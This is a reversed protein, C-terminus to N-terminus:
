WLARLSRGPRSASSSRDWSRFPGARRPPGAPATEADEGAEGAPLRGSHGHPADQARGLTTPRDPLAPGLCGAPARRGSAMRGAAGRGRRLSRARTGQEAEGRPVPEAPEDTRHGPGLELRELFPCDGSQGSDDGAAARGQPGQAPPRIPQGPLRRHPAARDSLPAPRVGHAAHRARGHLGRADAAGEESARERRVAPSIGSPSPDEAPELRKGSATPWCPTPSTTAWSSRIGATTTGGASSTCARPCAKTFPAAAAWPVCLSRRSASRHFTLPGPPITRPRAARSRPVPILVKGRASLYAQV